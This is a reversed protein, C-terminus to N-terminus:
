PLKDAKAKLQKAWKRFAAEIANVDDKALPHMHAILRRPVNMDGSVLEEFWSARPFIQEFDKWRVRVIKALDTLLVYDIDRAGRRSGHWAEKEEDKRNKDAKERVDKPVAKRWWDPGYAAGLVGAIVDRASNEFVYLAPYAKEAMRKADDAHPGTMGPLREVNVGGISIVTEKKTSTAKARRGGNSAAAAGSASKLDRITNRVEATEADTLYRSVDIGAEHALTYIALETSMPLEDKRKKVLQSLRQPSFKRRKLLEKRLERNTAV